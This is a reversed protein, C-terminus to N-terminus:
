RTEDQLASAWCLSQPDWTAQGDSDPSLTPDFLCAALDSAGDFTSMEDSLGNAKAFSAFRGAWASPACFRQPVDMARRGCEGEIARQLQGLVFSERCAYSVVDVLDKMRSSPFGGSTREMIGCLKDALQDPLSYVLYDCTEVGPVDLRNAPTIREPPFTLVCDLSLDILVPDKEEDGVYTAFRLRLLRSYGNEDLSVESKTLRFTCWDGLDIAAIRKAQM